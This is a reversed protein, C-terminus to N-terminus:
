ILYGSTMTFKGSAVAVIVIKRVACTANRDQYDWVANRGLHSCTKQTQHVLVIFIIYNRRPPACNVCNMDSM